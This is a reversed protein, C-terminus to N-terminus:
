QGAQGQNDADEPVLFLVIVVHVITQSSQAGLGVGNNCLSYLQANCQCSVHHTTTTAAAATLTRTM